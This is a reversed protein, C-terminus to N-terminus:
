LAQRVVHVPWRKGGSGLEGLDNSGYVRYVTCAALRLKGFNSNHEGSPNLAVWKLFV